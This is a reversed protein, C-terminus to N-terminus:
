GSGRYGTMLHNLLENNFWECKIEDKLLFKAAYLVFFYVPIQESFNLLFSTVSPM